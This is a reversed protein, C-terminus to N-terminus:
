CEKEESSEKELKLLFNKLIFLTKSKNFSSIEM